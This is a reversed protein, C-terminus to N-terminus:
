RIYGTAIETFAEEPWEELVLPLCKRLGPYNTISTRSDMNGGVVLRLGTVVRHHYFAFLFDLISVLYCRSFKKTNSFKRM